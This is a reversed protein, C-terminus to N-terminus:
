QDVYVVEIFFIVNSDSRQGCECGQVQTQRDRPGSRQASPRTDIQATVPVTV